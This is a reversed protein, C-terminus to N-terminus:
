HEYYRSLTYMMASPLALGNAILPFHLLLLGQKIYILRALLFKPRVKYTIDDVRALTLM